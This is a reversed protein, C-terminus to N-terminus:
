SRTRAPVFGLEAGHLLLQAGQPRRQGLPGEELRRGGQAGHVQVLIRTLVIVQRGRSRAELVPPRKSRACRRTDWRSKRPVHNTGSSLNNKRGPLQDPPRRANDRGTWPGWTRALVGSLCSVRPGQLSVRGASTRGRPPCGPEAGPARGGRASSHTHPLGTNKRPPDPVNWSTDTWLLTQPAAGAVARWAPGAM